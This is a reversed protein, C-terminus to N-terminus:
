ACILEGECKLEFTRSVTDGPADGKEERSRDGLMGLHHTGTTLLLDTSASLFFPIRM